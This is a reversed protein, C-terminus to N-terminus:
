DAGPTQLFATTGKLLLESVIPAFGTTFVALLVVAAMRQPIVNAEVRVEDAKRARIFWKRVPPLRPALLAASVLSFDIFISRFGFLLLLHVLILGWLIYTLPTQVRQWYKGLIRQSRRNATLALPILILVSLTGFLLFTRGVTRSLFGGPFTDATVVAAITLDVAASFFMGIGFDRRLVVFWRKGTITILPTVAMMLIFLVISSSGLVDADSSALHAVAGPKGSVASYVEPAMFIFPVLIISRLTWVGWRRLPASTM